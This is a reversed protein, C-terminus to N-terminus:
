QEVFSIFTNKDEKIKKIMYGFSFLCKELIEIINNDSGFKICLTKELEEKHEIFNQNFKEKDISKIEFEVKKLTRYKTNLLSNIFKLFIKKKEKYIESIKNQINKIEEPTKPRINSKKRPKDIISIFIEDDYEKKIISYDISDLCDSLIKALDINDDNIEISLEGELKYKYKELANKVNEIKIEKINIKSFKKLTTLKIPSFINVFNLILDYKEEIDKNIIDYKINHLTEYIEDDNMIIKNFYIM